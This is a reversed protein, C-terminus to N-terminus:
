WSPPAHMLCHPDVKQHTCLPTFRDLQQDAGDGSARGSGAAADVDEEDSEGGSGLEAELAAVLESSAAEAVTIFSSLCHCTVSAITM